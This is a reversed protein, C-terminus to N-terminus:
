DNKRVTYGLLTFAYALADSLTAKTIVDSFTVGLHVMTQAIQPRIGSIVCQTGMLRAAANTKILHQAVLTDVMPVGTIDIIAVSSETEVISQLLNELVVNTRASDLVGILPLVLIGNWIKVVPTSLELLEQQQRKIIDERSKQYTEIVFLGLEDFMVNAAWTIANVQDTELQKFIAEFLSQKFSMVFRAVLGASVSKAAWNKSLNILFDRVGNWSSSSLDTVNSKCADVLVEMFNTAQNEIEIASLLNKTEKSVNKLNSIWSKLLYENNKVIFNTLTSYSHSSM